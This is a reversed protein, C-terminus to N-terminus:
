PVVLKMVTGTPASDTWYIGSSDVAIFAPEAQGAALTSPTGGGKPVRMVVGTCAGTCTGSSGNWDTWYVYSSDIAMFQPQVVGTALVTAAGGDLPMKQVVGCTVGSDPTCGPGTLWYVSTSDVAIGTPSYQESAVTTPTGGVLPVSVVSGSATDNTFYANTGDITMDFTDNQGSALTTTTGGDLPAAGVQGNGYEYASFYVNNADLHISGPSASATVAGVTTPTGGDLPVTEVVIQTYYGGSLGGLETWYANTSNVAIGGTTVLGSALTAPAGGVKPIRGVTDGTIGGTTWYVNSSDIAVGYPFSQGTVLTVLCGGLACTMTSPSAPVACANGCAGCNAPDSSTDVCVGSCLTQPLGADTPPCSADSSGGEQVIAADGSDQADPPADAATAADGSAAELADAPADAPGSEPAAGEPGAAEPAGRDVTADAGSADIDADEAPSTSGSSGFCGLLSSAMALGVAGLRTKRDM